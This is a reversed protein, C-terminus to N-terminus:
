YWTSSGDVGANGNANFWLTGAGDTFSSAGSPPRQWWAAGDNTSLLVEFDMSGSDDLGFIINPKATMSPNLPVNAIDMNAVAAARAQWPAQLLVLLLWALTKPSTPRLM